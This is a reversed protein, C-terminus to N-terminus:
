CPSGMENSEDETARNREGSTEGDVGIGLLKAGFKGGAKVAYGHGALRRGTTTFQERRIGPVGSPDLTQALAELLEADLYIPLRPTPIAEVDPETEAPDPANM